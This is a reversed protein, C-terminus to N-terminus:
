YLGSLLANAVIQALPGAPLGGIQGVVNQASPTAGPQTLIQMRADFPVMRDLNGLASAALGALAAGFGGGLQSGAYRAVDGANADGRVGVLYSRDGIKHIRFSAITFPGARSSTIAIEVQEFDDLRRFIDEQGPKLDVSVGSAHVELRRGHGFLLRIAPFASLSVDAQGGHATLRGAAEHAALPPIVFQSAVLLVAVLIGLRIAWRQM